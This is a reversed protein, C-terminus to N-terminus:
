ALEIRVKVKKNDFLVFERIEQETVQEIQQIESAEVRNKILEKNKSLAQKIVSDDTYYKLIIKDGVQLKKEKRLTQVRRVFENVIREALLTDDITLNLALFLDGESISDYNQGM